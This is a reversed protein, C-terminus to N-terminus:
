SQVLGGWSHSVLAKSYWRSHTYDGGAYWVQSNRVDARKLGCTFGRVYGLIAPPGTSGTCSAKPISDGRRVRRSSSTRASSVIGAMMRTTIDPATSRYSSRVVALAAVAYAFIVADVDLASGNKFEVGTPTFRALETGSKIAIKDALVLDSFGADVV